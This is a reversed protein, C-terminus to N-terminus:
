SSTPEQWLGAQLTPGTPGRRIMLGASAMWRLRHFTPDEMRLRPMIKPTGKSNPQTSSANSLLTVAPVRTKAVAM